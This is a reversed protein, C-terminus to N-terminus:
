GAVNNSAELLLHELYALRELSLDIKAKLSEDVEALLYLLSEHFFVGFSDLYRLHYNRDLVLNDVGYLDILKPDSQNHWTHAADIFRRLQARARALRRLLPIAESENHPNAINFWTSVTEAIAVVSGHGDVRSYVFLTSPVMDDLADRLRQYERAYVSAERFSCPQRFKKIVLDLGTRQGDRVIASAQQWVECHHGVSSILTAPLRTTDLCAIEGPIRDMDDASAAANTM